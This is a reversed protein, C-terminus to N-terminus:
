GPSKHKKFREECMGACARMLDRDDIVVALVGKLLQGRHGGSEPHIERCLGLFGPDPQQQGCTGTEDGTEVSCQQSALADYRDIEHEALALDRMDDGIAADIRDDGHRQQGCSQFVCRELDDVDRLQRRRGCPKGRM